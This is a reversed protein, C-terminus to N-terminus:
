AAKRVLRELSRPEGMTDPRTGLIAGGGYGMIPVGRAKSEGDRAVYTPNPAAEGSDLILLALVEQQKMRLKAAKIWIPLESNLIADREAKPDVAM